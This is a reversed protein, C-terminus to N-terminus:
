RFPNPPVPNDVTAFPDIIAVLPILAGRATDETEPIFTSRFLLPAICHTVTVPVREGTNDSVGVNVPLTVIVPPVKASPAEAKDTVAVIGVVIVVTLM